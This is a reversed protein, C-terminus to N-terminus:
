RVWKTRMKGTQEVEDLYTEVIDIPNFPRRVELYIVLPTLSAYFLLACESCQTDTPHNVFRRLDTSNKTHQPKKSTNQTSSNMEELEAALQAKIDSEASEKPTTATEGDVAADGAGEEEPKKEGEKEEARKRPQVKM